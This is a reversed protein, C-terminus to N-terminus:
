DVNNVSPTQGTVVSKIIRTLILVIVFVDVVVVVVVAIVVVACGCCFWLLVM